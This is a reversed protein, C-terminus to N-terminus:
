IVRSDKLKTLAFPMDYTLKKQIQPQGDHKRGIHTNLAHVGEETPAFRKRSFCYPCALCKLPELAEIAAQEAM